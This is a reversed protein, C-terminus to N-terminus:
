QSSPCSKVLLLAVDFGSFDEFSGL